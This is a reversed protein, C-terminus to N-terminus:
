KHKKRKPLPAGAQPLPDELGQMSLGLLRAFTPALQAVAVRRSVVGPRVRGWLILPVHTDYDRYAGHTTGEVEDDLIWDPKLVVFLDGSRDARYARRFPLPAARGALEERTYVREIGPLSELYGKLWAVSEADSRNLYLSPVRFDRILPDPVGFRKAAAEEIGRRLPGPSLIVVGADAGEKQALAPVRAVGHDATLALVINRKGVRKDLFALFRAVARDLRAFDDAQECSDPGYIHGIRDPASFSVALVDPDTSAGMGLGYADVLNEAFGELIDNGWPSQGLAKMDAVSHPFVGGTKSAGHFRPEDLPCVQATSAAISFDWTGHEKLFAPLGDNYALAAPLPRYYTSTAFRDGELWYAADAGPGVMLIAARDKLSASVVRSAGYRAKVRQALSLAGFNAASYPPQSSSDAVCYVERGLRADFWDNGVIGSSSAYIGSGMVAHGPGTLTTAHDQHAEKFVLGEELLAAFGGEGFYPRFRELYDARMQDVSVLVILRPPVEARAPAAPLAALLLVLLATM